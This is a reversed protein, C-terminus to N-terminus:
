VKPNSVQKTIRIFLVYSGGKILNFNQPRYVNQTLQFVKIM